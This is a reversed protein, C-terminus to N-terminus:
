KIPIEAGYFNRCFQLLPVANGLL